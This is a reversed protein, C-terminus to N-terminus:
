RQAKSFDAAERAAGTVTLIHMGTNARDVAYIYGRDDVEVNNTQIAIKCKQAAGEGVCRKDTKDTTGPIYYGIEQPHFPDRVDVARVGANFYTVFLIRNYYVPTPNENSSHAGFRGGASCFDGSSEPVTWTAVPTPKSEESVDVMRLTQRFEQCENAVTEGIVAVFDKVRGSSCEQFIAIHRDHFDAITIGKGEAWQALSRLAFRKRRLTHEAYGAARLQHLFLEVHDYFSSRCEEGELTRTNM